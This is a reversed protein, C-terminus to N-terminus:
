GGKKANSIKDKIVISIVFFVRGSKYWLTKEPSHDRLVPEIFATFSTHFSWKRIQFVVKNRLVLKPTNSDMMKHTWSKYKFLCYHDLIKHKENSIRINWVYLFKSCYLLLITPHFHCFWLIFILFVFLPSYLLLFQFFFVNFFEQTRSDVPTLIPLM